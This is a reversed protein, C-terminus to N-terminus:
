TFAADGDGENIWVNEPLLKHLKETILFGKESKRIHFFPSKNKINDCIGKHHCVFTKASSKIMLQLIYNTVNDTLEKPFLLYPTKLEEGNQTLILIGVPNNDKKIIIRWSKFCNKYDTFYYKSSEVPIIPTEIVWPFETLWNLETINRRFLNNSQLKEITLSLSEDFKSIPIFSLSSDFLKIKYFHLRVSTYVGLVYDCMKLLGKLRRWKFKHRPIITAFDPRLYARIGTHMVLPTYQGTTDYVAKAQPIYNTILIDGELIKYAHKM